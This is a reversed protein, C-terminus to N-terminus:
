WDTEPPVPQRFSAIEYLFLLRARTLYGGIWLGIALALEESPAEGDVLACWHSGGLLRPGAGSHSILESGDARM